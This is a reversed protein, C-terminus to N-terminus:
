RRAARFMSPWTAGQPLIATTAGSSEAATAGSSGGRAIDSGSSRAPRHRVPPCLAARHKRIPRRRQSSSCRLFRSCATPFRPPQRVGFSRPPCAGTPQRQARARSPLPARAACHRSCRRCLALPCRRRRTPRPLSNLLPRPNRTLTECSCGAARPQPLRCMGISLLYCALCAPPAHMPCLLHIAHAAPVPSRRPLAPRALLASRTPM